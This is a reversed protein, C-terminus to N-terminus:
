PSRPRRGAVRRGGARGLRMRRRRDGDDALSRPATCSNEMREGASHRWHRGRLRRALLDPCDGRRGSRDGLHCGLCDVRHGGPRAAMLGRESGASVCDGADDRQGDPGVRRQRVRLRSHCEGSVPLCHSGHRPEARCVARAPGLARATTGCSGDSNALVGRGGSLLGRLATRPFASGGGAGDARHRRSGPGSSGGIAPRSRRFHIM